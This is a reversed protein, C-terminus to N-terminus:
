LAPVVDLEQGLMGNGLRARFITDREFSQTGLRQGYHPGIRPWAVHPLEIAQPVAYREQTRIGQDGGASQGQLEVLRRVHWLSLGPRPQIGCFPFTLVQGAHKGLSAPVDSPGGDDQPDGAVSDARPYGFM